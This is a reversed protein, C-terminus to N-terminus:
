PTAAPAQNDRVLSKDDFAWGKRHLEWAVSKYAAAFAWWGIAGQETHCRRCLAMVNWEVDDGYAGRTIIHAPDCGKRFCARCTMRHFRDLLARDRTRTPKSIM